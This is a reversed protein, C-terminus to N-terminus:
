SDERRRRLGRVINWINGFAIIFVSMLIGVTMSYWRENRFGDDEPSVVNRDEFLSTDVTPTAIMETSEATPTGEVNAEDVVTQVVPPLAEPSVTAQLAEATQILEATSPVDPIATAEQKAVVDVKEPKNSASETPEETPEQGPIVEIVEVLFEAIWGETGDEMLINFWSGDENEGIILAREDPAMSAVAGSSTTPGNRVNVRSTATVVAFLIPEPTNTPTPTHTATPTNTPTNSPTVTPTDTPTATDTPTDTATPTDTPTPTDTNPDNPDRTPTPTDTPLPTDTVTPTFTATPLPTITPTPTPREIGLVGYNVLDRYTYSDEYGVLMGAIDLDNADLYPQSLPMATYGTVALLPAVTEPAVQEAWVRVRDAREALVIIAAFDDLSDIDLGTEQGRVDYRVLRGINETFARLGVVDGVLYQGIYYDRNAELDNVEAIASMIRDARLLGIPNGGVIVPRAGRSLSHLLLAEAAEDLEASGTSGYEAAVLVLAGPQLQDIQQYFAQERSAAAFEDPPLNGIELVGMFPLAMMVILIVSIIFRSSFIAGLRSGVRKKQREMETESDLEAERGAIAQLLEARESQAETLALIGAAVSVDGYTVTPLTNHVGPLVESLMGTNGPTYPDSPLEFGRERLERLRDPLEDLPRDTEDRISTAATSATSDSQSLERLWEPADPSLEVAATDADGVSYDELSDDSFLKDFDVDGSLDLLQQDGPVALSTDPMSALVDDIAETPEAIDQLFEDDAPVLDSKEVDAITDLWDAGGAEAAAEEGFLTDLEDDGITVSEQADGFLTDLEDQSAGLDALFDEDVTAPAAEEFFFSDLDDDAPPPTEEPEFLTEVDSTDLAALFDDATEAEDALTDFEDSAVDGGTLEDLLDFSADDQNLEGLLDFDSDGDSLEGLLDFDEGGLLQGTLGTTDSTLEGLLDFEDDDGGAAEELPLDFEPLEPEPEASTEEPTDDSMWDLLDDDAQNPVPEETESVWDPIDEEEDEEEFLAEPEAEFEASGAMWDPIAEEEDEEEELFPSPDSDGVDAMWDPIAEEEEDPAEDTLFPSAADDTDGLDSMWDPVTEEEEDHYSDDAAPLDADQMWEPTDDAASETEAIPEDEGQMWEPVDEDEVGQMWAPVDSEAEADEGQMWEPTDDEAQTDAAADMGAMWPPLDDIPAETSAAPEEEDQLWDPADDSDSTDLFDLMSGGEDPPVAETPAESPDEAQQHAAAEAEDLQQEFRDHAGEVWNLQGTVGTHGEDRAPSGDDAEDEIWSLEGTVGLSEDRTGSQGDDAEDEIWSLEGTVGLSEDRTGQDSDDSDDEIWSLEGTVGLQDEGSSEAGDEGSQQWDFSSSKDGSDDDNDDDKLWSLDNDFDDSM